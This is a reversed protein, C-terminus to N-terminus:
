GRGPFLHATSLAQHKVIGSSKKEFRVELKHVLRDFGEKVIDICGALQSLAFEYSQSIWSVVLAAVRRKITTM